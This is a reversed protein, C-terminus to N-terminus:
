FAVCIFDYHWQRAARTISKQLAELNLVGSRQKSTVSAFGCAMGAGAYMKRWFTRRPPIRRKEGVEERM